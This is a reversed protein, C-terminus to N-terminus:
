VVVNGEGARDKAAVEKQHGYLLIDSKRLMNILAALHIVKEISEADGTGAHHRKIYKIASLHQSTSSFCRTDGRRQRLM